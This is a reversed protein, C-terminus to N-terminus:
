VNKEEQINFLYEIKYLGDQASKIDKALEKNKLNKDKAIKKLIQLYQSYCLDM